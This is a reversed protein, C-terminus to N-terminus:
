VHTNGFCDMCFHGCGPQGEPLNNRFLDTNVVGPNVCCVEVDSKLLIKDVCYMQM